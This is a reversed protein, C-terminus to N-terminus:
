KYNNIFFFLKTFKSEVYIESINKEFVMSPLLEYDILKKFFSIIWM